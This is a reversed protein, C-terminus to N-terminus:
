KQPQYKQSSFKYGVLLEIACAFFGALRDLRTELSQIEIKQCDLPHHHRRGFNRRRISLAAIPDAFIRFGFDCKGSAFACHLYLFGVTSSISRRLVLPDLHFCFGWNWAAAQKQNAFCDAGIGFARQFDLSHFARKQPYKQYKPINKANIRKRGM